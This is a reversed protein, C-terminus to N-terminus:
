KRKVQEVYRVLNNSQGANVIQCGSQAMGGCSKFSLMVVRSALDAQNKQTPDHRWTIELQVCIKQVRSEVFQEYQCSGNIWFPAVTSDLWGNLGTAPMGEPVVKVNVLLITM